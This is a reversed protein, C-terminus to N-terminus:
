SAARRAAKWYVDITQDMHVQMAREAADPDASEIAEFIAGHFALAKKPQGPTKLTTQRQELLWDGLALLTAEFLRNGVTRVIAAHFEVDTREFLPLDGLARANADLARRINALDTKTRHAAAHRAMACEVLTRADQLQRIGAADNMFARVPISLASLVNQPSIRTVVAPTGSRLRVVGARELSLLAERVAPRGVGFKEMLQRESPLTDGPLYTGELIVQELDREIQKHVKPAGERSKALPPDVIKM